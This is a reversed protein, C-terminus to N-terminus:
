SAREGSRSHEEAVCKTVDGPPIGAMAAAKRLLEAPGGLGFEEDQSGLPLRDRGEALTLIRIPSSLRHIFDVMARCEDDALSYCLLVLSFVQGSLLALAEPVTHAVKVDLCRELILRRTRNLLVDHGVCLIQPKDSMRERQRTKAFNGQSGCGGGSRNSADVGAMGDFVANERIEPFFLGGSM